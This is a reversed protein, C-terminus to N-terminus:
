ILIRHDESGLGRKGGITWLKNNGNWILSKIKLTFLKWHLFASACSVHCGEESLLKEGYNKVYEVAFIAYLDKMDSLSTPSVDNLSSLPYM